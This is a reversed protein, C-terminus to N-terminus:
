SIRWFPMLARTTVPAYTLWWCTGYIFVTGFIWSALISHFISNRQRWLAFLLPVLGVWALWWLDFDPFSLTLLIGSLIALIVSLIASNNKGTEKLGAELSM